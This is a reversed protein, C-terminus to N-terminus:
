KVFFKPALEFNISQVFYIGCFLPRRLEEQVGLKEKQVRTNKKGCGVNKHISLIIKSTKLFRLALAFWGGEKKNVNEHISLL